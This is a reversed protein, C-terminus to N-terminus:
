IPMFHHQLIKIKNSKHLLLRLNLGVQSPLPKNKAMTKVDYREENWNGILTDHSYETENTTCRWGFQKFKNADTHDWTEGHGSATLYGCFPPRQSMINVILNDKHYGEGPLPCLLEINSVTTKNRPLGFFLCIGGNPQIPM